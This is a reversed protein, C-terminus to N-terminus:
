HSDSMYDSHSSVETWLAQFYRAHRDALTVVPELRSQWFELRRGIRSPGEVVRRSHAGNRDSMIGNGEM